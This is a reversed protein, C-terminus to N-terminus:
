ALVGTERLRRIRDASFGAEALIAEGDAGLAPPAHRIRFASPDMTLPSGILALPDSAQHSVVSGNVQTQEHALAQSLKLVPACLLDQEDLRALWHETTNSAFRERFLAHLAAKHEMQGDFTAYRPDASLDPLGLAACIDQLPNAKFAGVLVVAGDTTKFAGTLPYAGWSFDRGRQLWMAAEQMQMALMSEFLSVSVQQGRGTKERQLLALLIAQVLHMGASYDCLSTAYITLPEDDNCKRMMVGSLAQALIDQGGKYALPGAQGFGSGFACIIRPNIEALKAYGFGMREMVGARFNNVVVDAGRVLDYIVQRGDEGRLDLAMSRKNRNLSRFVPNNPGDPDGPISGRSLDGAGPREIKIVDAGYDALVQTASPGLMVQSFDIVRVGSLPQIADSQM